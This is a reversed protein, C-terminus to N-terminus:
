EPGHHSLNYIDESSKWNPLESGTQDTLLSLDKEEINKLCYFGM